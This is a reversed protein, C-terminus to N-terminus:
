TLHKCNKLMNEYFTNCNKKKINSFYCTINELKLMNQLCTVIKLIKMGLNFTNKMKLFANKIIM